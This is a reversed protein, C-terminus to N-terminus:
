NPWFLQKCFVAKAQLSICPGLTTTVSFCGVRATGRTSEDLGPYSNPDELDPAVAVRISLIPLIVIIAQLSLIPYHAAEVIFNGLGTLVSPSPLPHM